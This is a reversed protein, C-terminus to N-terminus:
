KQDEQDGVFLASQNLLDNGDRSCALWPSDKIRLMSVEFVGLVFRASRLVSMAASENETGRM